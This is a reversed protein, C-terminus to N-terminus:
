LIKQIKQVRIHQAHQLPARIQTPQVTSELKKSKYLTPCMHFTEVLTQRRSNCFNTSQPYGITKMCM